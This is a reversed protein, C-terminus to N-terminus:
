SYIIELFMSSIFVVHSHLTNVQQLRDGGANEGHIATVTHEGAWVREARQDGWGVGGGTRRDSASLCEAARVSAGAAAGEEATGGIYVSNCAHLFTHQCFYLYYTVLIM